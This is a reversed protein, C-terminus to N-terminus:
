APMCTVAQSEPTVAAKREEETRPGIPLPIVHWEGEALQALGSESGVWLLSDPGVKLASIRRDPPGKSGFPVCGKETLEWLGQLSTGVLLRGRWPEIATVSFPQSNGGNLRTAMCQWKQDWMWLGNPTGVWAGGDETVRMAQARGGAFGTWLNHENWLEFAEWAAVGSRSLGVWLTESQAALSLPHEDRVPLPVVSWKESDFRYLGKDESGVFLHGEPGLAMATIFKGAEPHVVCSYPGEAITTETLVVLWLLNRYNM